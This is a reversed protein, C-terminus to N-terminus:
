PEPQLGTFTSTVLWEQRKTVSVTHIRSLLVRTSANLVSARDLYGLFTHSDPTSKPDTLSLSGAVRSLFFVPTCEVYSPLQGPLTFFRLQSNSMSPLALYEVTTRLRCYVYVLEQIRLLSILPFCRGELSTWHSHLKHLSRLLHFHVSSGEHVPTKTYFVSLPSGTRRLYKVRPSKSCYPVACTLSGAIPRSFTKSSNVGPAAFM